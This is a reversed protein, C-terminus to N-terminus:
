IVQRILRAGPVANRAKLTMWLMETITGHYRDPCEALAKDRRWAGREYRLLREHLVDGARRNSMGACFQEAAKRLFNNRESISLLTSPSRKGRLDTASSALFHRIHIM